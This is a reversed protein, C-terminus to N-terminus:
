TEDTKKILKEAEQLRISAKRSKLLYFFTLMFLIPLTAGYSALVTFAYKGLDPM